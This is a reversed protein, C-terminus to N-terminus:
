PARTAPRTAPVDTGRWSPPALEANWRKWAAEMAATRDPHQGALNRAEGADGALDYLSIPERDNKVLKWNGQRIAWRYRNPQQPPFNFRWYLVEHPSRGKGRRIFPLLDVGDLKRESGVAVGAAALATPLIDLSIVPQEYVMGAPLHRKWQVLFPVRIGGELLDGKV